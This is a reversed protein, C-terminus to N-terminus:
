QSKSPNAIQEMVFCASSDMGKFGKEIHHIAFGGFLPCSCIAFWQRWKRNWVDGGNKLFLKWGIKKEAELWTVRLDDLRTNDYDTVVALPGFDGSWLDVSICRLMCLKTSVVISGVVHFRPPPPYARLEPLMICPFPYIHLTYMGLFTFTFFCIYVYWIHLTYIYIYGYMYQQHKLVVAVTVLQPQQYNFDVMIKVSRTKYMWGFPPPSNVWRRLELHGAIVEQLAWGVYVVQKNPGAPFTDVVKTRTKVCSTSKFNSELQFFENSTVHELCIIVLQHNGWKLFILWIPDYGWTPTFM